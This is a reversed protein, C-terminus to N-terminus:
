YSLLEDERERQVKAAAAIEVKLEDATPWKANTFHFRSGCRCLFDDCGGSRHIVVRCGPCPRTQGEDQFGNVMFGAEMMELLRGRHDAISLEAFKKAAAPGAARHIDPAYMMVGCGPHMCRIVTKQEALGSLVWQELCGKCTAHACTHKKFRDQGARQFCPLTPVMSDDDADAGGDNGALEAPFPLQFVGTCITCEVTEPFFRALLSHAARQDPTSAHKVARANSGQQWGEVSRFM